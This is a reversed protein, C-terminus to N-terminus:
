RHSLRGLLVGVGFAGLLTLLPKTKPLNGLETGIQELLAEIEQQDLGYSELYDTLTAQPATQPKAAADKADRDAIQKRLEALEAELEAKTAM